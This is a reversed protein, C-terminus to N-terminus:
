RGSRSFTTIAQGMLQDYFQVIRAGSEARRNASMMGIMEDSLVVNSQEIMGSRIMTEGTEVMATQPASFASGGRATLLESQSPEFIAIAATPIGDEFVSGNESLVLADGTVVLDGGGAQQLIMGESNALYGDATRALQGGRAYVLEDGSRFQLFGNGVLAIDLANGTEVLRGPAFDTSRNTNHNPDIGRGILASKDEILTSFSLGRKYGPTSLNSINQASIEIQRESSSLIAAALDILGSM